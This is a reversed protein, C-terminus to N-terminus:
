TRPPRTVYADTVFVFRFPDGPDLGAPTQLMVAANAQGGAEVALWLLAAVCAALGKNELM